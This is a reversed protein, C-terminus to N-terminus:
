ELPSFLAVLWHERSNGTEARIREARHPRHEFAAMLDVDREHWVRRRLPGHESRTSLGMKYDAILPVLM